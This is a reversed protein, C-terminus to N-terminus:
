ELCVSSIHDESWFQLITTCSPYSYNFRFQIQITGKRDSNYSRLTTSNYFNYQLTSNLLQIQYPVASSRSLSSLASPVFLIISSSIYCDRIHGWFWSNFYYVIIRVRYYNPCFDWVCVTQLKSGTCQGVYVTYRFYNWDPCKFLWIQLFFTKKGLACIAVIKTRRNTFSSTYLGEKSCRIHWNM